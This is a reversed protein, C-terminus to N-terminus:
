KILNFYYRVGIQATYRTRYDNVLGYDKKGNIDDHALGVSALFFWRPTIFKHIGIQTFISINSIQNLRMFEDSYDGWGVLAFFYEPRPSFYHRYTIIHTLTAVRSASPGAFIRYSFYNKDKTYSVSATWINIIDDWYLFRWGISFELGDALGQFYEAGGRHLPFFDNKNGPYQQKPSFAYDLWLNSRSFLNQYVELEYQFKLPKNKREYYPLNEGFNVKGIYTGYKTWKAFGTSNILKRSLYPENFYEFYSELFVYDRYRFYQLILDRLAIGEEHEPNIEGLLYNLTALADDYDKSLYQIFAKKYLFNEDDPFTELADKVVKMADKYKRDWIEINVMLDFVDYNKPEKEHLEASVIRASDFMNSFAYNQALLMKAPYHEPEQALVKQCLERATAFNGAKTEKEAESYIDEYESFALNKQLEKAKEHKPNLTLLENLTKGANEFDKKLMLANAKKYLLEEYENGKKASYYVLAEELIELGDDYNGGWIENDALLTLIDYSDPEEDLLPRVTMRASDTKLEWAYTRGILAIADKYHPYYTLLERCLRRAEPWRNNFAADRAKLFFEDASEPKEQAQTTTYLLLCLICLCFYKIQKGM